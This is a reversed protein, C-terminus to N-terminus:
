RASRRRRRRGVLALGLVGAAVLAGADDGNARAALSCGSSGDGGAPSASAGTSSPAGPAGADRAFFGGDDGTSGGDSPSSADGAAGGDTSDGGDATPAVGGGDPWAGGDPADGTVLYAIARYTQNDMFAALSRGGGASAISVSRDGTVTSKGLTVPPALRGGDPGISLGQLDAPVNGETGYLVAYSRGDWVVGPPMTQYEVAPGPSGLLEGHTGFFQGQYQYPAAFMAFCHGLGSCALTPLESEVTIWPQGPDLVKADRSLRASWLTHKSSPGHAWVFVYETGTWVVAYGGSEDDLQVAAVPTPDLLQGAGSVRAADIAFGGTDVAVVWTVLYDTGDSTVIPGGRFDKISGVAIPTADLIHADSDLRVSEIRAREWTLLYGHGNSALVPGVNVGADTGQDLLLPTPDLIGGDTDVRVGRGKPTGDRPDNWIVLYSTGGFAVQVGDEWVTSADVFDGVRIPGAGSLPESSSAPAEDPAVSKSAGHGCAVLLTLSSWSAFRALRPM